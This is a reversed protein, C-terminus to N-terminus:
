RRKKSSPSYHNELSSKMRLYFAFIFVVMSVMNVAISVREGIPTHYLQSFALLLNALVLLGIGIYFVMSLWWDKRVTGRKLQHYLMLSYSVWFVLVVASLVLSVEQILADAAELHVM